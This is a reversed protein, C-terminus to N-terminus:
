QATQAEFERRCVACPSRPPGPTLFDDLTTFDECLSQGDRFYHELKSGPLDAWGEPRKPPPAVTVAGDDHQVLLGRALLSNVTAPHQSRTTGDKTLRYLGRTGDYMFIMVGGSKLATLLTLQAWSLKDSM